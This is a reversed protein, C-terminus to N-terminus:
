KLELLTEEFERILHLLFIMRRHDVKKIKQFDAASVQLRHCEGTPVVKELKSM